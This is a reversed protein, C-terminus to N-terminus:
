VLPTLSEQIKERKPELWAPLRLESGLTEEPEDVAFGPADTAIEVLQGDPARFYLSRFYTRDMVPSVDVGISLLHERWGLLQEDDEARFAFHHTQGIGGRAWYNSNPWGFLTLSSNPEVTQGDYSAWFYHLTAPDDQNVSRKVLRLGLAEEYFEHARELDDTIGTIHHLGRLAMEADLEEVPEPYTRARIAEEDRNGRLQEPSPMVLTQGLADAPEDVAYGPGETALELIHGDPDAFYLSKFWGRDFPGNVMVGHDTLWRKWRLLAEENAVGLALHHVGGVGWRGRGAHPWEFFTVVTGPSGTRDGFYLHYAGPDDFNVTRKVLRLGLVDRYFRLTRQADSSVLTIHHIGQTRLGNM